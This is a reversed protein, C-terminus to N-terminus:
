NRNTAQRTKQYYGYIFKDFFYTGLTLFGGIVLILLSLLYMFLPESQESPGFIYVSIGISMFLVAMSILFVAKSKKWNRMIGIGSFILVIVSIFQLGIHSILLSNQTYFSERGVILFYVWLALSSLGFVITTIGVTFKEVSYSLRVIKQTDIKHNKQFPNDGILLFCFNAGLILAMIIFLGFLLAM